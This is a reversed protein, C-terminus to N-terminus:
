IYMAVAPEDEGKTRNFQRKLDAFAEKKKWKSDEIIQITADNSFETMWRVFTSDTDTVSMLSM